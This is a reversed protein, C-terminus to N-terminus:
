RAPMAAHSRIHERVAARIADREVALVVHGGADFSRLRAGPITAAAFEGNRYLQLLDDRAHVVLTPANVAAIRAGPLAAENDMVVGASRSSAPNMYEIIREVIDRQEPSLGAVVDRSAGLVGMLQTR